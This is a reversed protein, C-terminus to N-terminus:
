LKNKNNYLTKECAPIIGKEFAMITENAITRIIAYMILESQATYTKKVGNTTITMEIVPAISRKLDSIGENLSRDIHAGGDQNSIDRVLSKRSFITDNWQLITADEWWNEFNLYCNVKELKPMPILIPLSNPYHNVEYQCMFSSVFNCKGENAFHLEKVGRSDMFPFSDLDCFSMLHKYGSICKDTSYLLVRLRTAILLGYKYNYNDYVYCFDKLFQIQDKVSFLLEEPTRKIKKM